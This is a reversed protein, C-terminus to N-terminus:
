VIDSLASGTDPRLPAVQITLRTFCVKLSLLAKSLVGRSRSMGRSKWNAAPQSPARCPLFIFADCPTKLRRSGEWSDLAETCRVKRHDPAKSRSIALHQSMKQAQLPTRRALRPPAPRPPATLASLSPCVRHLPSSSSHPSHRSM